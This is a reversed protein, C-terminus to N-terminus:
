RRQQGASAASARRVSQDPQPVAVPEVVVPAVGQERMGLDDAAKPAVDLIRGPVYPGRDEVKVTTQRDNELNKVKATTGLPLSRSAAINSNPNFRRGNAMKRGNFERGYYSAPGRQPQGSHDIVEQGPTLRARSSRSRQRFENPVHHRKRQVTQGLQASKASAAHASASRRRESAAEVPFAWTFGILACIVLVGIYKM